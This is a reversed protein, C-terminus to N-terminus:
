GDIDHIIAMVFDCNTELMALYLRKIAATKESVGELM